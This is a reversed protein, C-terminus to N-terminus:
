NHNVPEGARATPYSHNPLGYWPEETQQRPPTRGRGPRNPSDGAGRVVAAMGLLAILPIAVAIFESSSFSGLAVLAGAFGIVLVAVVVLTWGQLFLRLTFPPAPAAVGEEATVAKTARREALGKRVRVIVTLNGPQDATLLLEDPHAPDPAQSVSGGGVAWSVVTGGGTLRARYRAQEGILVMDPGEIVVPSAPGPGASGEAGESLAAGPDAGAHGTGNVVQDPIGVPVAAGSPGSVGVDAPVTAHRSAMMEALRFQRVHVNWAMAVVMGALGIAGLGLLAAVVPHGAGASVAGLM